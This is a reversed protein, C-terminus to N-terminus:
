QVEVMVEEWIEGYIAETAIVSIMVRGSEMSKFITKAKSNVAVVESPLFEGTGESVQFLVTGRYPSGDANLITSEIIIAEGAKIRTDSVALDLTTLPNTTSKIKLTSSAKVGEKTEGVPIEHIVTDATKMIDAITLKVQYQGPNEYTFIPNLEEADVDNQADGDGDSDKRLDFDWVYKLNINDLAPDARSNTADFKVVLDNVEYLFAAVPFKSIREVFITHTVTTALGGASTVKVRVAYEGPINYVRTVQSGSSVDDYKGDGDFDWAYADNALTVGQPDTAEAYFTLGDGAKIVTKATKIEVEPPMNAGSKVLLPSTILGLDFNSVGGGDNDIVEVGFYVEYEEGEYGRSLVSIRSFPKDVVQVGYKEDSDSYYYWFRYRTIKGDFDHPGALELDVDIPTIKKDTPPKVIFKSFTPSKNIVRAYLIGSVDTKGTLRDKVILRVENCENGVTLDPYRHTARKSTSYEKDGLDWSYALGINSGDINISLGADLFLNDNRSIIVGDKDTGCIDPLVKEERGNVIAKVIAVPNDQTGIYIDKTVSTENNDRDFATLTVQYRGKAV